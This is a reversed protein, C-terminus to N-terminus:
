AASRNVCIPCVRESGLPVFTSSCDSCRRHITAVGQVSASDAALALGVQVVQGYKFAWNPGDSVVHFHIGYFRAFTAAGSQLAVSSVIHAEIPEPAPSDKLDDATAKLVKVHGLNVRRDSKLSKCEVLV